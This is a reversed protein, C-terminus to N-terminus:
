NIIHIFNLDPRETKYKELIKKEDLTLEKNKDEPNNKDYPIYELNKVQMQKIFFELVIKPKLKNYSVSYYNVTKNNEIGDFIINYNDNNINIKDIRLVELSTNVKLCDRIYELAKDGGMDNFSVDIEKLTKSEKIKDFILKFDNNNLYNDKLVINEIKKNGEIFNGIYEGCGTINMGSFDVYKINPCNVLSRTIYKIGEAKFNLHDNYSINLEELTKNVLLFESIFSAGEVTISNKSLTLYHIRKDSIVRMLDNVNNDLLNCNHFYINRVYYNKEFLDLLSHFVIIDHINTDYLTFKKIDKYFFVNILENFTEKNKIKIESFYIKKIKNSFSQKVEDVTKENILGTILIEDENKNGEDDNINNYNNEDQTLNVDNVKELTKEMDTLDITKGVFKFYELNKTKKEIFSNYFDKVQETNLLFIRHLDSYNNPILEIMQYLNKIIPINKEYFYFITKKNFNENQCFNLIEKEKNQGVQDFFKRESVKQAEEQAILIIKYVNNKGRIPVLSCYSIIYKSNDIPEPTSCGMKKLHILHIIKKNFFSLM